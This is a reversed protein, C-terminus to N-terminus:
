PRRCGTPCSASRTRRGGSAPGCSRPDRAARGPARESSGSSGTPRRARCRRRRWRRSRAATPTPPRCRRRSGSAARRSRRRSRPRRGGRAAAPTRCRRHDAGLLHQDLVPALLVRAVRDPAQGETGVAREVHAAAVAGAEVEDVIPLVARRTLGHPSGGPPTPPDIDGGVASPPARRLWSTRVVPSGALRSPAMRRTSGAM